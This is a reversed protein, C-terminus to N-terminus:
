NDLHQTMHLYTGVATNDLCVAPIRPFDSIMLRGPFGFAMRSVKSSTQLEVIDDYAVVM